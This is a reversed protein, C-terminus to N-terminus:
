NKLKFSLLNLLENFFKYEEDTFTIDFLELSRVRAKDWSFADKSYDSINELRYILKEAVQIADPSRQLSNPIYFKLMIM